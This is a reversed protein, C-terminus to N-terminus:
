NKKDGLHHLKFIEIKSPTYEKVFDVYLQVLKKDLVYEYSTPIRFTINKKNVKSFLLKINDKYQELDGNIIKKCKEKNLIKVDIIFEDAYKIALELYKKAVFLSTEFCINIKEKKLRKLLNEIKIVQFLPEGGSFTVGGVGNYYNIDKNIIKYIEDETIKYGYIGKEKETYEEIEFNINEPNACWPCRLSCGKFFVTTRIGPGDSLSFRQINTVVIDEKM